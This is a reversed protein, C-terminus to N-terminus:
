NKKDEEKNETEKKNGKKHKENESFGLWNAVKNEILTGTAVSIM